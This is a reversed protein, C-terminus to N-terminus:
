NSIHDVMNFGEEANSCHLACHTALIGLRGKSGKVMELKNWVQKATTAGSIHIM